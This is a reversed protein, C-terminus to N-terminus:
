LHKCASPQKRQRLSNSCNATTLTKIKSSSNNLEINVPARISLKQKQLKVGVTGM